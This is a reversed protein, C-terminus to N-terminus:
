MFKAKIKARLKPPLRNWVVELIRFRKVKNIYISHKGLLSIGTPLAQVADQFLHELRENRSHKVHNYSPFFSKILEFSLGTPNIGKKELWIKETDLIDIVARYLIYDIPIAPRLSWELDFFLFNKGQRIINRPILDFASGDILECGNADKKDVFKRLLGLYNIFLDRLEKHSGNERFFCELFKLKLLDGPYWESDGIQHRITYEGLAEEIVGNQHYIRKKNVILKPVNMLTTVCAYRKARNTSFRKALWGPQRMSSPSAVVLFSNAFEPLVGADFITKAAFVESFTYVRSSGFHKFPFDIWNYLYLNTSEEFAQNSFITSAFKYDPFCYYWQIASFGSTLLLQELQKKTWTIPGNKQLYGHIGDYIIGTHDEPCGSWYKLGIRNEIALVLIGTPKLASRALKLLELCAVRETNNSTSYFLPAYELVGILLVIDYYNDLRLSNFNACYVKVNPLDRCRERTIRARFMSGEVAEVILGKEGLFRTIAGCGSGLELVRSNVPLDLCRLINSRGPGLHYYTPWDRVQRALEDSGDTLDTTKRLTDLIYSEVSRGDSYSFDKQCQSKGYPIVYVGTAVDLSFEDLSVKM